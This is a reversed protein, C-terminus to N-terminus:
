QGSLPSSRSLCNNPTSIFPMRISPIDFQIWASPLMDSHPHQFKRLVHFHRARVGGQALSETCLKGKDRREMRYTYGLERTLIEEDDDKIDMSRMADILGPM